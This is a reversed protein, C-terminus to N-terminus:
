LIKLIPIIKKSLDSKKQFSIGWMYVSFDNVILVWFKSGGLSRMKMSSVDIFIQEGPRNGNVQTTKPVKKQKIKKMTCSLCPSKHDRQESKWGLKQEKGNGLEDNIHMVKMHGDEYIIKNNNILKAITDIDDIAKITAGTLHGTPGKFLQDFEIRQQGKSLIIHM